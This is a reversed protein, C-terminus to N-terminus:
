GIRQSLLAQIARIVNGVHGGSLRGPALPGRTDEGLMPLGAIDQAVPDSMLDVLRRAVGVAQIERDADSGGHPALILAKGAYGAAGLAHAGMHAVGATQEAAYAAAKAAASRAARAAGGADGGRRAIAEVVPLDGRGFARTQDIAQRIRRDGPLEDDVISLVREACVAAWFAVRQRQELTLTQRSGGVARRYAQETTSSDHFPHIGPRQVLTWPM